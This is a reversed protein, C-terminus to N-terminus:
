SWKENVEKIIQWVRQKKMKFARAMECQRLLGSLFRIKNNREYTGFAREMIERKELKTLM